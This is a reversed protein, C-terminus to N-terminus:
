NRCKTISYRPSEDLLFYMLLNIILPLSTVLSLLRWDDCLLAIWPLLVAALVFFCTMTLNTVIARWEAGVLEMAASFYLGIARRCYTKFDYKSM